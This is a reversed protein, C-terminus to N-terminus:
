QRQSITAIPSLASKGKNQIEYKKIIFIVLWLDQVVVPIAQRNVTKGFRDYLFQDQGSKLQRRDNCACPQPREGDGDNDGDFETM